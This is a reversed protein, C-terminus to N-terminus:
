GHGQLQHASKLGRLTEVRWEGKEAVGSSICKHSRRAVSELISQRVIHLLKETVKDQLPLPKKRAKYFMPQTGPILKVHAKYGKVVPLHKATINNVGHKPLLDTSLLGFEKDSQVLALQKKQSGAVTGSLTM